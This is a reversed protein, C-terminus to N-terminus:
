GIRVANGFFSWCGFNDLPTFEKLRHVTTTLVDVNAEQGALWFNEEATDNWCVILLPMRHRLAPSGYKLLKKRTRASGRAQLEYEVAHWGSGFPSSGLEVVGDPSIATRRGLSQYARYGAAVPRDAAMFQGLLSMVGDEHRRRDQRLVWSQALARRRYVTVTTRDQRVLLDTGAPSLSLRKVRKDHDDDLVQVLGLNALTRCLREAVKRDKSGALSAQALDITMGPYEGITRLM